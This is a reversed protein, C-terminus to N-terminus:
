SLGGLIKGLIGGVAPSPATQAAETAARQLNGSLGGDQPASNSSQHQALARIIFPALLMLLKGAKGADLGSAQQVGDQVTAHHQGLISGLMGGIGGGGGIASIASQLASEGGSQQATNAMGGLMMPLASQVAAETAAPDAGIQRSIEQIGDPGIQQQVLDLLSMHYWESFPPFVPAQIACHCALGAGRPVVVRFQAVWSLRSMVANEASSRPFITMLPRRGTRWDHTLVWQGRGQARFM